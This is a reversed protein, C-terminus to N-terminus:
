KMGTIQGTFYSSVENQQGLIPAPIARHESRHAREEQVGDTVSKTWKELKLRQEEKIEAERKLKQMAKSMYKTSPVIFVFKTFVDYMREQSSFLAPSSFYKM